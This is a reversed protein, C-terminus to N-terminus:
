EYNVKSYQNFLEVFPKQAETLQAAIDLSFHQRESYNAFDETTAMNAQIEDVFVRPTYGVKTLYANMEKRLEPDMKKVLKVARQKYESNIYFLGHAIEHNLAGNDKAVGIIYFKGKVKKKCKQYVEWMQEDYTNKDKIGLDHVEQVIYSPLNFGAWDTPYTFAGKGFELSYWRMFDLIKFGKGRYKSSSSEYYEQYRLFFICMDYEHHFELLFINPKVEKLKFLKKM